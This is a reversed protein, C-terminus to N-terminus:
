ERAFALPQGWALIRHVDHAFREAFLHLEEQRQQEKSSGNLLHSSFDRDRQLELNRANGSVSESRDVCCSQPM